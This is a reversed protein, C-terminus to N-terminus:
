LTKEKLATLRDFRSPFPYCRNAVEALAYSSIALLNADNRKILKFQHHFLAKRQM